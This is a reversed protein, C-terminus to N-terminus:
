KDDAEEKQGIAKVARVLVSLQPAEKVVIGEM